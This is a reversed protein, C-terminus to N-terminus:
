RARRPTKGDYEYFAPTRDRDHSQHPCYQGAKRDKSFIMHGHEPNVPCPDGDGFDNRRSM